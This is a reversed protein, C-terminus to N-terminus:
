FTPAMQAVRPIDGDLRQALDPPLQRTVLFYLLLGLGYVDTRADLPRRTGEDPPMWRFRGGALPLTRQVSGDRGLAGAGLLVVRAEGAGARLVHEPRLDGHVVRLRHLTDVALA